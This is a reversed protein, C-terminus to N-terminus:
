AARAARALAREKRDPDGTEAARIARDVDSGINGLQEALTLSFWRGAALQKHIVPM